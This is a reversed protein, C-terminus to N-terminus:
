CFEENEMQKKVSYTNKKKIVPLDKKEITVPQSGPFIGDKITISMLRECEKIIKQKLLDSTIKESTGKGFSITM